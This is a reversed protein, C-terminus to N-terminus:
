RTYFLPIPTRLLRECGGLNDEFATLDEEMRLTPATPLGAARM